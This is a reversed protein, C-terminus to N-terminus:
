RLVVKYKNENWRFYLQKLKEIKHSGCTLTFCLRSPFQRINRPPKKHWLWLQGQPHICARQPCVQVTALLFQHVRPALMKPCNKGVPMSCAVPQLFSKFVCPHISIASVYTHQKSKKTKKFRHVTYYAKLHQELSLHMSRTHLKVTLFWSILSLLTQTPMRPASVTDGGCKMCAANTSPWYLTLPSMKGVVLPRLPM